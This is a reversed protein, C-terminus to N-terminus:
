GKKFNAEPNFSERKNEARYCKERKNCGPWKLLKWEYVQGNSGKTIGHLAFFDQLITIKFVKKCSPCQYPDKSATFYGIAILLCDLIIPWVFWYQTVLLLSSLAIVGVILAIFLLSTKLERKSIPEQMLMFGLFAVGRNNKRAFQVM